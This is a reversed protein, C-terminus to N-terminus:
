DANTGANKGGDSQFRTVTAPALGTRRAVDHNRLWTCQSDFAALVALGRALPVVMTRSAPLCNLDAGPQLMEPIPLSQMMLTERFPISRPM